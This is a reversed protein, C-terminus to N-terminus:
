MVAHLDHRHPAAFQKGAQRVYLNIMAMASRKFTGRSYRRSLQSRKLSRAIRQVDTMPRDPNLTNTQTTRVTLTEM